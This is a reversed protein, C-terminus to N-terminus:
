EVAASGGDSGSGGDTGRGSGAASGREAGAASGEVRRYLGAFRFPPPEYGPPLYDDPIAMRGGDRAASYHPSMIEVGAENFLDQIHTRLESYTGAMRNPAQTYANIEYRVYFDDLATQLVFPPPELEISETRRAAEILLDHVQRWPADYGITVSTHLILGHRRASSSFNVIHSSLVMANPITIDVNKITRVRTVLLTRSVVDGVTDAIKVRDGEQFPRMYIIVM